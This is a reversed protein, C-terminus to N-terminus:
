APPANVYARRSYTFTVGPWRFLIFDFNATYTATITARWRGTPTDLAYAVTPTGWTGGAPGRHANIRAIVQAETPRPFITAYRAGESVANRLAAHAYFLSGVQTVGAILFIFLPAILAFEIASAGRRDGALKFLSRTM